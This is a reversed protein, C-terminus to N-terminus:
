KILGVIIMEYAGLLKLDKGPQATSEKALRNLDFRPIGLLRLRLNPKAATAAETGNIFIMRRPKQVVSKGDKGLVRALFWFGDDNLAHASGLLQAEFGAYNYQATQGSVTTFVPGRNVVLGAADGEYYPFAVDAPYPTFGDINRWSDALITQTGVKTLPHIEFVHAPNSKKAPDVHVTEGQRQPISSPHELWLRWAGVVPLVKGGLHNQLDAMAPKVLRANVIEVVTPLGIEMAPRGSGHIDGDAGRDHPSPPVFDVLFTDDTILARDKYKDIFTNHLFVTKLPAPAAVVLTGALVSIAAVVAM